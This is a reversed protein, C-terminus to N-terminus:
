NTGTVRFSIKKRDGPNGSDAQTGQGLFNKSVVFRCERKPITRDVLTEIDDFRILCEFNYSIWFDKEILEQDNRYRRLDPFNQAELRFHRSVTVPDEGFPGIEFGLAEQNAGAVSETSCTFHYLKAAELRSGLTLTPLGTHMPVMEINSLNKAPTKGINEFIVTIKVRITDKLLRNLATKQFVIKADAIRIYPKLQLVNARRAEETADNAAKTTKRAETLVETTQALTRGIIYVGIVGIFVQLLTFIALVYTARWMGEQANLDRKDKIFNNSEQGSNSPAKHQKEVQDIGDLVIENCSPSGAYRGTCESYQRDEHDREPPASLFLVTGISAVAMFAPILVLCTLGNIINKSRLYRVTARDLYM